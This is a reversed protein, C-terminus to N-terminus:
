HRQRARWARRDDAEDGLQFFVLLVLQAPAFHGLGGGCFVFVDKLVVLRAYHMYYVAAPLPM